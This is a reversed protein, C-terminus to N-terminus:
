ARAFSAAMKDLSQNLGTEALGFMETDPFGYEAVTMETKDGVVKFTVVTRVDEPFDPRLGIKVPDVKKGGKDALNQIFEIRQLPVIKRYSWTNYFVQGDPARM